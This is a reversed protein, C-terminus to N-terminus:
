ARSMTWTEVQRGALTPRFSPLCPAREWHVQRDLLRQRYWRGLRGRGGLTDRNGV